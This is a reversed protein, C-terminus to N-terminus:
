GKKIWQLPDMPKGHHRVEFHLGPGTLSGSDGVTAIVEGKEVRDGKVKFVEELHAYVTYYHDGHDIILMNGFGKFWSSFIAYGDSVARIPEGREAQINIGSQFNTVDFTEDRYTGYFSVIKGKVPWSLLGKYADFPQHADGGADAPRNQAGAVSPQLKSVTNDLARAALKLEELTALAVSKENRVAALLRTRRAQETNLSAIQEKLKLELARKEAKRLNLQELLSDLDTQDQHLKELMREDQKLISQLASRRNIFDFFSEATALLHIRGIWNLKYLAVLRESAYAENASIQAQLEASKRVIAGTEKELEAVGDRAQRIRARAKNLAEDVADLQQLVSKEKREMEALERRSTQLRGKISEAEEQPIKLPAIGAANDRTPGDEDLTTIKVFDPRHRIYGVIGNREIKLWRNQRELIRFQMGKELRFIINHDIGPGKRMNLEQVQVVGVEGALVLCPWLLLLCCTLVLGRPKGLSAKQIFDWFGFGL